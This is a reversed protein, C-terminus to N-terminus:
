SIEEKGQWPWPATEGADPPNTGQGHLADVTPYPPELPIRHALNRDLDARPSPLRRTLRGAPIRREQYLKASMSLRPTTM